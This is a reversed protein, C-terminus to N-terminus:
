PRKGGESCLHACAMPLRKDVRNTQFLGILPEHLSQQNDKVALLYDAKRARIATATDTQCHLADATVIAGAIDLSALVPLTLRPWCRVPQRYRTATPM